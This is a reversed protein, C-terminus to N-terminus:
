GRQLAIQLLDSLCLGDPALRPLQHHDARARERRRAKLGFAMQEEPRENRRPLDVTPGTDNPAVM